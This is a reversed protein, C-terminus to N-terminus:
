VSDKPIKMFPGNDEKASMVDHVLECKVCRWRTAWDRLRDEVVLAGCHSCTM